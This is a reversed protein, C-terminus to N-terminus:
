VAMSPKWVHIMQEPFEFLNDTVTVCLRKGELQYDMDYNRVQSLHLHGTVILRSPNLVNKGSELAIYNFRTDCGLIGFHFDAPEATRFPSQFIWSDMTYWALSEDDLKGDRRINWKSLALCRDRMYNEDIDPNCEPRILKLSDTFIIDANAIICTWDCWKENAIDILDQFTARKEIETYVIKRDVLEAFDTHQGCSGSEINPKVAGDERSLVIEIKDIYANVVNSKISSLLEIKRSPNKDEYYELLLVIM